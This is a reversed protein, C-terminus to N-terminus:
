HIHLTSGDEMSLNKIKVVGGNHVDLSGNSTIKVQGCSNITSSNEPTINTSNNTQNQSETCTIGIQTEECNEM